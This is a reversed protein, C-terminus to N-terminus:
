ERHRTLLNLTGITSNFTKQNQWCCIDIGNNKFKLTISQVWSISFFYIFFFEFDIYFM